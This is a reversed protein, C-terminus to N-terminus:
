CLRLEDRGRVEVSQQKGGLAYAVMLTKTRAPAPDWFGLLRGKRLGQPIHVAGDDVLAAVAITVDAVEEMSWGSPSSADKVGYKASQIVLGGQEREHRQRHEVAGALLATLEDAETRRAAILDQMQEHTLDGYSRRENGRSRRRKKKKGRSVLAQLAAFGAMSAMLTWFVTSSELSPRGAVLFPLSFRQGLRSWYVSLHLSSPTLGLEIGIRSFRGARKLGRLAIVHDRVLSTRFEVEARIGRSGHSSNNGPSSLSDGSETTPASSFLDHGYRAYTALNTPTAAASVTWSGHGDSDLDRDLGRLGRDATRTFARDASLGLERSSVSYGVEATPQQLFVRVQNFKGNIHSFVSYHHCTPDRQLTWDGGDVTVFATGPGMRRHLALGVSGTLGVPTPGGRVSVEAHFPSIGPYRVLGGVRTVVTPQPCFDGEVELVLEAPKSSGGKLPREASPSDDKNRVFEQRIKVDVQPLFPASLLRNMYSRRQVIAGPPRYDDFVIAPSMFLAEKTFAQVSGGISLTATGCRYQTPQSFAKWDQPLLRRLSLLTEDLAAAVAPLEVSTSQRVTLDLPSPLRRGQRGWRASATPDALSTADLRVALEGSAKTRELYQEALRDQLAEEYSCSDSTGEGAGELALDDDPSGDASLLGDYKVRRYPEVLTEFAEQVIRFQAEALLRLSPPPEVAHLLYFLRYYAKRIDDLGASGDRPLCFLEYYDRRAIRLPGADGPVEIFDFGSTLTKDLEAEQGLESPATIREVISSSDDYDGFEYERRTAAFQEHLSYRSDAARLAHQQVPERLQTQSSREDPIYASSRASATRSSGRTVRSGSRRISSESM